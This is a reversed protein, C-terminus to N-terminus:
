SCLVGGMVDNKAGEFGAPDGEFVVEGCRLLVAHDVDALLAGQHAIVVFTVSGRLDDIVAKIARESVVDLSATAEDLIVVSPKGALARAISLRQRQGRSLNRGAEDIRTEYGEPLSLVFDHIRAAIAARRAGDETISERGFTINEVVTGAFLFPEQAVMAIHQGAAVPRLETVAGDSGSMRIFGSQPQYVGCLLAAVTSKGAGSEGVIATVKGPPIAFSLNSVAPVEKGPYAFAVNRLTFGYPRQVPLSRAEFSDAPLSRSPSFETREPQPALMQDHRALIAGAQRLRGGLYGAQSISAILIVAFTFYSVLQEVTLRSHMLEQMGYMALVAMVGAFVLLSVPNMCAMLLMYRCIHAFTEDLWSRFRVTMYNTRGYAQIIYANSAAELLLAMVKARYRQISVVSRTAKRIFLAIVVAVSGVGALAILTMQFHITLLGIFSGLTVVISRIFDLLTSSLGDQVLALDSSFASAIEGLAQPPREDLRQNVLNGFFRARLDNIIRESGWSILVGHLLGALAQFALLAAIVLVAQRATDDKHGAVVNHLSGILRGFQAPIFLYTASGLILALVAVMYATRHPRTLKLLNFLDKVFGERV